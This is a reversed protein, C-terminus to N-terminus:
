GLGVIEEALVEPYELPAFHGVGDVPRLRVDSFFEDLRDSWSRPFLPDHEPWLVTTPVGIRQDPTPAVEAASTAVAGAGARYWNISATFAGPASYVEVLHDLEPEFGPGSWHTWFHNLYARVADPNGDILEEIVPLRHFAQYWFETQARESFVRQGIGPLPPAVVLAKVLEPRSKAIGQAVRSGIDYGALVPLELGLEDILGVVSRGQGAVDYQGDVLYKDSEGFGRLDPVVVQRGREVLMPGLRRYDTRDGPWGHLLVVAPGDGVQDYALRFGDVATSVPM